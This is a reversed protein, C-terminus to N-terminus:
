PRKKSSTQPGKLDKKEEDLNNKDVSKVKLQADLDVARIPDVEKRRSVPNTTLMDKSEEANHKIKDNSHSERLNRFWEHYEGANHKITDDSDNEILQTLVKQIRNYYDESSIALRQIGQCNLVQVNGSEVLFEVCTFKNEKIIESDGEKIDINNVILKDEIKSGLIVSKMKIKQSLSMKKDSSLSEKIYQSPDVNSYYAEFFMPKIQDLSEFGDLIEDLKGQKASSVIINNLAMKDGLEFCRRILRISNPINLDKLQEVDLTLMYDIVMQEIPKDGKEFVLSQNIDHNNIHKLFKIDDKKNLQWM